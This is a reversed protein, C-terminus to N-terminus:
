FKKLFDILLGVTYLETAKAPFWKSVHPAIVTYELPLGSTYEQHVWFILSDLSKLLNKAVWRSNLDSAIDGVLLWTVNAKIMM